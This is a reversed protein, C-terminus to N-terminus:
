RASPKRHEALLKQFEAERVESPRSETRRGFCRRALWIWVRINIVTGVTGITLRILLLFPDHGRSFAHVVLNGIWDALWGIPFTLVQVVLWTPRIYDHARLTADALCIAGLTLLACVIWTERTAIRM